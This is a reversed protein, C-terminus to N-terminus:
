RSKSQFTMIPAEEQSSEAQDQGFWKAGTIATSPSASGSTKECIPSNEESKYISKVVESIKVGGCKWASHLKVPGHRASAPSPQEKRITKLTRRRAAIDRQRQRIDEQWDVSM